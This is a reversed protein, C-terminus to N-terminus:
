SVDGCGCTGDTCEDCADTRLTRCESCPCAWLDDAAGSAVHCPDVDVVFLGARHAHQIMAARTGTADDRDPTFYDGDPFRVGDHHVRLVYEGTSRDFRPPSIRVIPGRPETNKM